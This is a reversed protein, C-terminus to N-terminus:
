NLVNLKISVGQLYPANFSVVVEGSGESAQIYALLRGRYARHVNDSYSTMDTNNSGELGLLKAPGNVTCTIENDALKVVNGNDDLVEVTLHAVQGASLEAKDATVRLSYPRYSTRIEYQAVEAGAEDYAVAKLTGAEFPVD